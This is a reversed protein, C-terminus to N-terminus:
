DSMIRLRRIVTVSVASLLMIFSLPEPINTRPSDYMEIETITYRNRIPALFDVYFVTDKIDYVLWDQFGSLDPEIKEVLGSQTYIRTSVSNPDSDTVYFRLTDIYQSTNFMYRVTYGSNYNPYPAHGRLIGYTYIDGDTFGAGNYGAEPHGSHFTGKTFTGVSSLDIMVAYSTSCILLLMFSLCAVCRRM